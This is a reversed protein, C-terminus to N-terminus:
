RWENLRQQKRFDIYIYIYIYIYWAFNRCFKVKCCNMTMWPWRDQNHSMGADESFEHRILWGNDNWEDGALWIELLDQAKRGSRDANLEHWTFLCVRVHYTVPRASIKPALANRSIHTCCKYCQEEPLRTLQKQSWVLFGHLEQKIYCFSCQSGIVSFISVPRFAIKFGFVCIVRFIDMLVQHRLDNRTWTEYYLM